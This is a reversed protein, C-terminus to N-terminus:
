TVEGGAVAIAPGTVSESGAVCLWAVTAAVEAPTVLRGQPNNRTLEEVAERRSRGTEKAITEVARAVLDTDTYGPCVANVTIGDRATELALARTLGVVGHKAACYAAVYRYGKLGAASAIMVIRGWGGRQMGAVVQHTCLYAGTLNVALMRQWHDLDLSAFPASEAAGANNVLIDVAGNAKVASAFSRAVGAPDTVDMGLARCGPLTRGTEALRASDRGTITLTAGLEYLRKAVAAGIGRGGGTVLAHRGGLPSDDSM